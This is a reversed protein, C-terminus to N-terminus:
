YAILQKGGNAFYVRYCMGDVSLLLTNEFPTVREGIVVFRRNIIVPFEVFEGKQNCGFTHTETIEAVLYLEKKCIINRFLTAKKVDNEFYTKTYDTPCARLIKAQKKLMM